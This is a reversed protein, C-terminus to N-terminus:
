NVSIKECAKDGNVSFATRKYGKPCEWCKKTGPDYFGKECGYDGVKTASKYDAHVRQSCAKSSTVPHATRNYGQPCSYCYGNLDYFQGGDCDTGLLGKGRNHRTANAFKEGAPLECAKNSKVSLVTRKYGNPCTWCTGGDIPDKFANATNCGKPAGMLKAKTHTVNVEVKVSTSSTATPLKELARGYVEVEALSLIANNGLRQVMVYRAYKKQNTNFTLPNAVGQRYRYNSQTFNTWSDNQKEKIRIRINDLRNKCCDTRNWIKVQSIEYVKGLDVKWWPNKEGQGGKTHTVSKRSWIGSTNGDVAKSAQGANSSYNSSQSATKGLALNKETPPLNTFFITLLSIGIIGFFTSHSTIKSLLFNEM